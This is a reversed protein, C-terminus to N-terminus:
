KASCTASNEMTIPMPMSRLPMPKRTRVALTRRGPRSAVLVETFAGFTAGATPQALGVVWPEEVSGGVGTGRVRPPREPRHATLRAEGRAPVQLRQPEWTPGDGRPVPVTAVVEGVHLYAWRNWPGVQWADLPVEPSMGADERV